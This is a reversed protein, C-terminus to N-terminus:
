ECKVRGMKSIDGNFSTAAKLMSSMTTVSSVDWKSIGGKFQTAYAFMNNMDKVRSVDWESIDGNFSSVRMFIASMDTVTSVDWKTIPGNPGKSCDFNQSINVCTIIASQLQAKSQPWFLHQGGCANPTISLVLAFFIVQHYPLSVIPM